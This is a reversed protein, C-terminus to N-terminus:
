HFHTCDNRRGYSMSVVAAGATEIVFEIDEFSHESILVEHSDLEDDDSDLGQDDEEAVVGEVDGGEIAGLPAVGEDQPDQGEGDGDYDTEDRVLQDLFEDGVAPAPAAM